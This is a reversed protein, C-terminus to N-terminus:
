EPKRLIEDADTRWCRLGNLYTDLLGESRQRIDSKGGRICWDLICGRTIVTIDHILIEVDLDPRIEGNKQGESLLLHIFRSYPRDANLMRGGFDDNCMMYPYVVRINEVGLGASIECCFLLFDRLRTLNSKGAYQYNKKQQEFYETYSQDLESHYNAMIEQKSKFHFYITGVSVGAAEAIEEMIVNDFGKEKFLRKACHYVKLKTNEKQEQRQTRKQYM